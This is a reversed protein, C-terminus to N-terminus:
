EAIENQRLATKIRAIQKRVEKIRATNELQGTALQFRLNFLEQKFEQEKQNLEDTSLAKIESFKNM